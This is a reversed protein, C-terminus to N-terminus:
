RLISFIHFNAWAECTDNQSRELSVFVHGVLCELVFRQIGGYVYYMEAAYKQARSTLVLLLEM